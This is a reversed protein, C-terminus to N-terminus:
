PKQALEEAKLGSNLKYELVLLEAAPKGGQLLKMKHPLRLGGAEKWDDYLVEMGATGAGRYQAKAPLNTKEDLTLRIRNGQKDSIEVVNPEAANVTREPDRDSLWLTVHLRFLEDQAQRAAQPPLGATGQPGAMWGGGKGDYYISLKGFPLQQDLRIVPPVMRVDQKVKMGGGALITVDATHAYDKLAALKDAGGAATQISQLIQRGRALTGADMKAMAAKPEPITLDVKNVPLNLATLPAGFDEPKGVALIVFNGPKLSEKAVRLVDARTVAAVAKQYQFIFDKPYGHYEDNVLRALIKAPSDFNFVFSNLTSEKAVQLEEETVETTRLREIEERIVRITEVTSASKTSGSVFFMGPHAYQAAWHAGVAYVLGMESRVKKVLRSTFGAGGLIDAMVELAPYDKDKLMGGLHGIQFFTQNVDKKEALYVGPAAQHTVPPLPPVPPQKVAWDAFLKQLKERMTSTVFDGHLSLIMNGPFYYRQHYHILDQREIRELTEYEMQRGWPTAPGYLLREFERSAVAGAQDNRRSILGRMQTKVVDIKDQRFEPETLVDKFIELVTGTHESLTNFSVSGSTEGVNSEVSAAIGELLENLQDGTRSKTGGTRMVQGFVDSLGTKDAPDHVNGVRVRASGRVLPLEHNELLYVKMGNAMTFSVIEPMRIEKLPKYKLEKYSKAALPAPKPKGATTQGSSLSAMLLVAAAKM